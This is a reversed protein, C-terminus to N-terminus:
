IPPQGRIISVGAPPEFSFDKPGITPNAQEGTLQFMTTSGDIDKWEIAQITGDATVTLDVQSVRQAMNKPTGHLQDINGDTTMTLGTLEKELKTHGLLFRLPSRLDDLQKAPYKEAQADGPTYAYGFKGDILFLKGSPQAYSWRMRGPKALLLTGTETRQIGMGQYTETFQVRLGHLQNYHADVRAALEAATLPAINAPSAALAPQAPTLISGCLIAFLLAPLTLM